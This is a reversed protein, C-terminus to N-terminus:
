IGRKHYLLLYAFVGMGIGVMDAFIDWWDASRTTTLYRQIGETLFAFTIGSLIIIVSTKFKTARRKSQLLSGFYSLVTFVFFFGTHALKDFGEFTRVHGLDDAPMSILIIVIVAWLIAWAYNIIFRM